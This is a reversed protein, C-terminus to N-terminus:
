VRGQAVDVLQKRPAHQAFGIGSPATGAIFYLLWLVGEPGLEEATMKMPAFVAAIIRQIRERGARTWDPM